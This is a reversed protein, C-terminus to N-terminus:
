SKHSSIKANQTNHQKETDRCNEAEKCINELEETFRNMIKM